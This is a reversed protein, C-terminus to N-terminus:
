LGLLTNVARLFQQQDIPKIIVEDAGCAEAMDLITSDGVLGGASVAIIKQNPFHHKLEKIVDFGEIRPMFIDTIVLDYQNKHALALGLAGDGVDDVEFGARELITTLVLRDGEEDDIVLIHM